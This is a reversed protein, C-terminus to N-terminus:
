VIMLIWNTINLTAQLTGPQIGGSAAVWGSLQLCMPKRKVWPEVSTREQPGRPMGNGKKPM